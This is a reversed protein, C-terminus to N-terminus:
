GSVQDFRLAHHWAADRWYSHRVVDAPTDDMRMGLFRGDPDFELYGITRSDFLWFDHEPLTLKRARMEPLYRIDEGTRLNYPTCWLSFRLYDSPPDGILRVREVRKGQTTQASILDLWPQHWDVGPDEGALFRQFPEDEETVGYSSRAELRWATHEFDAFAQLFDDGVLLTM